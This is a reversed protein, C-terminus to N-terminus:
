AMRTNQRMIMFLVPKTYDIVYKAGLSKVLDINQTSCVGTVEAGLHKAFQVSFTGVSGSAGYILVKQDKQIKSKKIIWLATVGGSPLTAAEEFTTNTPKKSIVNNEPVCKYEAYGGLGCWVTSAFVEDGEKYKTVNKGIAEVKGSLEMGLVARRPKTIGLFLRGIIAQWPPGPVNFSRMRVDGRHVTTAYVKILVENAKPSPKEIETIKIVDPSGYGTCVAAKM